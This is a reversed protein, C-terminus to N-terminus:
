SFIDNWVKKKKICAINPYLFFNLFNNTLFFFFAFKIHHPTLYVHARQATLQWPVGRAYPNWALRHINHVAHKKINLCQNQQFYWYL